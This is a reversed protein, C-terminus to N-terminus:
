SGGTGKDKGHTVIESISVGQPEAVHQVDPAKKIQQILRESTELAEIMMQRYHENRAMQAAVFLARSIQELEEKM